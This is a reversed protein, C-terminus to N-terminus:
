VTVLPPGSALAAVIVRAGPPPPVNPVSGAPQTLPGAAPVIVQVVPEIPEPPEALTTAGMVAGPEPGMLRFPLMAAEPAVSALAPLLVAEWDVVTVGFASRAIVLFPGADTPAPELTVKVITTVLLPGDSAVVTTTLSGGT